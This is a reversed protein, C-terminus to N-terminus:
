LKVNTKLIFPLDMSYIICLPQLSFISALYINGTVGSLLPMDGFHQRKTPLDMSYGSHLSVLAQTHLLLSSQQQTGLHASQTLSSRNKQDNNAVSTHRVAVWGEGKGGTEGVSEGECM